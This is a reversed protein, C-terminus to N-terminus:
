VRSWPLEICEFTKPMNCNIKVIGKKRKSSDVKFINVIEIKEREEIVHCM